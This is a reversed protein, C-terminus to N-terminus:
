KELRSGETAAAWRGQGVGYYETMPSPSHGAGAKPAKQEHSLSHLDILTGHTPSHPDANEGKCDWPHSQPPVGSPTYDWPHSQTTGHTPSHPTWEMFRRSAPRGSQDCRFCTLRYQSAKRKTLSFNGIFTTEVFGADDLEVITRAATSNGCNLEQALTRTSIAISGNNAGDYRMAIQLYTARAMASLALWAPTKLMYKFIQVFPPSKGKKRRVTKGDARHKWASRSM